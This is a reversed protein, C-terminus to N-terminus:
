RQDPGCCCRRRHSARRTRARRRLRDSRTRQARRPPWRAALRRSLGCGVVHGWRRGHRTSRPGTTVCPTAPGVTSASRLPRERHARRARVDVTLETLVDCRCVQGFSCDHVTTRNRLGCALGARAVRVPPPDEPDEDEGEQDRGDVVGDDVHGHRLEDFTEIRAGGVQLPDDGAVRDDEGTKQERGATEAVPESATM